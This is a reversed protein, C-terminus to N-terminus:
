YVSGQNYKSITRREAMDNFLDRRSSEMSRSSCLDTKSFYVMLYTSDRTKNECGFSSLVGQFLHKTNLGTRPYNM